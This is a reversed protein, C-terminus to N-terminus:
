LLRFGIVTGVGEDRVHLELRERGKSWETRIAEGGSRRWGADNLGGALRDHEAQPDKPEDGPRTIFTVDLRRLSGGAYAVAIQEEEATLRYGVLREFPIDPFQDPRYALPARVLVTGTDDTAAPRADGGCGTVLIPMVGLAAIVLVATRVFKM